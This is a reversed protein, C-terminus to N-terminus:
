RNTSNQLWFAQTKKLIVQTKELLPKLKWTKQSKKIKSLSILEFCVLFQMKKARKACINPTKFNMIDIESGTQQTKQTFNSIM